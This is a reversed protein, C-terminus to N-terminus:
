SLLLVTNFRLLSEGTDKLLYENYVGAFCSSFVQVGILLLHINMMRDVLVVFLFITDSAM